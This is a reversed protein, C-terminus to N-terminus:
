SPMDFLSKGITGSVCEVGSQCAASTKLQRFFRAPTQVLFGNLRATSPLAAAVVLIAESPAGQTVVNDQNISRDGSLVPASLQRDLYLNHNCM